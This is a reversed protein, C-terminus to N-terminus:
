KPRRGSNECSWRWRGATRPLCSSTPSCFISRGWGASRWSWRKPAAAAGRHRHLRVYRLASVAYDRVTDQDEVVLVTESGTLVGAAKTQAIGHALIGEAAVPFYVKFTTGAGPASEVRVIGRCQQVIGYVTSLGLGTGKGVDKTTFFPEFIHRLTDEDMGSGTDTVELLVWIGATLQADQAADGPTVDLNATRVTLRGGSPMADCANVVLNMLVQQVQGPDIVVEDKGADFHASFQINDPALRRLMMECDAATSNLNLLRPEIINKRSFTLLQRTLEAAREGAKRIEGLHKLRVDGQPIGKILLSSYGNIVTLLNNFDHAVGGALRGVSELKQAQRFQEELKKRDTVDTLTGVLRAPLGDSDRRVVKARASIWIYEGSKCRMRFENSYLDKGSSVFESFERSVRGADEPHTLSLWEEYGRPVEYPGYGLMLDYRPSQLLEDTKLNWDWYAEETADLVLELRERNARLEAEVNEQKRKRELSELAFCLNEAVETALETEEENFFGPEASYLRL